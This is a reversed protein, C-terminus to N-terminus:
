FDTYVAFWLMTLVDSQPDVDARGIRVNVNPTQIGIKLKHPLPGLTFM